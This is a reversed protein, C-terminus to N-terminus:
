TRCYYVCVYEGTLEGVTPLMRPRSFLSKYLASGGRESKVMSAHTNCAAFVGERL